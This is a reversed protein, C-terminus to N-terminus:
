AAIREVGARVPLELRFVTGSTTGPMFRLTGNMERVALWCYYLGIGQGYSKTSFGKNFLQEVHEPAVGPGNDHVEIFAMGAADLGLHVMISPDPTGSSVLSEKANTLLNVLVQSVKSRESWAKAPSQIQVSVEVDHRRLSAEILHLSDTVIDVLDTDESFNSSIALGQHSAVIMKIYELGERLGTLDGQMEHIETELRGSLHSLYVPIQPGQEGSAFFGPLDDRHEELMSAVKSLSSVRSAAMKSGLTEALVSVNTMANGVNHLVGAAVESMGAQRSMMVSSERFEKLQELMRDISRALAGLEDSRTLGMPNDLRGSEGVRLAHHTLADLPEIVMRRLAIMLTTLTLLGAVILSWTAFRLTSLGQQYIDRDGATQILISSEGKLDKIVGRVTLRDATLLEQIPAAPGPSDGLNSISFSVGTQEQLEAVREDSIRRGFILVGALPGEYDSTLVPHASLMVFGLETLMVGDVKSDKDATVQLLPHDEPLRDGPMWSLETPVGEELEAVHGWFVTGDPQCYYVVDMNQDVFWEPNKLNEDYFEPNRGQVFEHSHDWSAWDFCIESLAELDRNIANECRHWDEIATSRELSRFSPMVAVREIVYNTLVSGAIVAVLLLTIKLRLRM